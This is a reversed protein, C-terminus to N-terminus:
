QPQSGQRNSAADSISEPDTPTLYEILANEDGSRIMGRITQFEKRLEAGHQAFYDRWARALLEEPPVGEKTALASVSERIDSPIELDGTQATTVVESSSSTTEFDACPALFLDGERRSRSLRFVYGKREINSLRNNAAAPELGMEAALSAGTAEGLRCVVDFTDLEGPTMDGVPRPSRAFGRVSDSIFLPVQYEKALFSVFATVSPDSSIVGFSFNGYAGARIGQAVPLILEQLVGTEAFAGELNLFQVRPRDAVTPPFQSDRFEAAAKRNAFVSATPRVPFIEPTISQMPWAGTM